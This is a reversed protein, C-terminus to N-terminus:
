RPSIRLTALQPGYKSLMKVMSRYCPQTSSLCARLHTPSPKLSINRVGQLELAVQEREPIAELRAVADTLSDRALTDIGM